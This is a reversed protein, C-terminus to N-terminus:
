FITSCLGIINLWSIVVISFTNSNTYICWLMVIWFIWYSGEYSASLFFITWVSLKMPSIETLFCKAYYTIFLWWSNFGPLGDYNRQWRGDAWLRRGSLWFPFITLHQLLFITLFSISYPPCLSVQPPPPYQQALSHDVVTLRAQCVQEPNFHCNSLFFFPIFLFDGQRGMQHCDSRCLSCHYIHSWGLALVQSFFRWNLYLYQNDKVIGRDNNLNVWGFM